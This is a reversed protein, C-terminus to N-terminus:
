WYRPLAECARGAGARRMPPPATGLPAGKSPIRGSARPANARAARDEASNAAADPVDGTNKDQVDSNHAGGAGGGWQMAHMTSGGVGAGAWAAIKAMGIGRQIVGGVARKGVDDPTHSGSRPGRLSMAM